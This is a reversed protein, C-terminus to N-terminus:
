YDPECMLVSYYQWQLINTVIIIIRGYLIVVSFIVKTINCAVINYDGTIKKPWFFM